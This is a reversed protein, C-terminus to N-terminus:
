NICKQIDAVWEKLEFPNEVAFVFEKQSTKANPDTRLCFTSYDKKSPDDCVCVTAGRLPIIVSNKDGKGHMKYMWGNKVIVYRTEYPAGLFKRKLQLLTGERVIDGLTLAVVGSDSVATTTTSSGTLPSFRQM